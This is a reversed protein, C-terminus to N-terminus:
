RNESAISLIMYKSTPRATARVDGEACSLPDTPSVGEYVSGNWTLGRLALTGPLRKCSDHPDFFVADYGHAHAYFVYTATKFDSWRGDLPPSSPRPNTTTTATVTPPPPAQVTTGPATVTQVKTRAETTTRMITTTRVNTTTRGPRTRVVTTVRHVTRVRPRTQAPTRPAVVLAVLLGVALLATLGLGAALHPAASRVVSAQELLRRAGRAHEPRLRRARKLHAQAQSTRGLADAALGLQGEVWAEAERDGLARAAALGRELLRYWDRVRRVLAIASQTSRVLRLLEPWREKRLAWESLGLLADVDPGLALVQAQALLRDATATHADVRQIAEQAAREDGARGVAALLEILEQEEPRREDEGDTM